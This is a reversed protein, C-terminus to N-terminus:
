PAGEESLEAKLEEHYAASMWDLAEGWSVGHMVGCPCKCKVDGCKWGSRKAELVRKEISEFVVRCLENV